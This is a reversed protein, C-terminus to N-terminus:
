MRFLILHQIEVIFEVIFYQKQYNKERGIFIDHKERSQKEDTKRVWQIEVRRIWLGHCRNWDHYACSTEVNSTTTFDWYCSINEHSELTTNIFSYKSADMQFRSCSVRPFFSSSAHKHTFPVSWIIVVNFTRAIKFM